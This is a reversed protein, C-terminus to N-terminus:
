DKFVKRPAVMSIAKVMEENPEFIVQEKGDYYFAFRLDPELKKGYSYDSTKVSRQRYSDLRHSNFPALIEMRELDYAAVRKRRSRNLVKDVSIQRDVYLYEYEIETYLSAFYTLIALLGAVLAVVISSSVLFLLVAVITFSLLIYYLLKMAINPKRKVM